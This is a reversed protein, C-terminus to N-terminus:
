CRRRRERGRPRLAHVGKSKRELLQPLRYPLREVGEMNWTHGGHGDCQRQRFSKPEYRVVEYKPVGAADHYVYLKSIGPQATMM